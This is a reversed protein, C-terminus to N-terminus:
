KPENAVSHPTVKSSSMARPRRSSSGPSVRKLMATIPSRNAARRLPTAASWPATLRTMNAPSHGSTGVSSTGIPETVFPTWAGVHTEGSTSSRRM